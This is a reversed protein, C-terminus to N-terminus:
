KINRDKKRRVIVLLGGIILVLGIAIFIYQKRIADGTSALNGKRAVSNNTRTNTGTNRNTRTRPNNPNSSPPNNPNHVYTNTITVQENYKEYSVKYGNPINMEVIDWSVDPELDSFVYKWNNEKNLTITKYLEKNRYLGVEIAKPRVNMKDDNVWVKHVELGGEDKPINDTKTEVTVNNIIKNTERDVSPLSVLFPKTKITKNDLSTTDGIVLYLGAELDSFSVSGQEDTCLTSNPEINDKTIYSQLTDAINCWETEDKIGELNISYGNFRDIVEFNFDNSVHAIKYISFQVNALPKTDSCHKITLSMKENFYQNDDCFAKNAPIIMFIILFIMVINKLVVKM